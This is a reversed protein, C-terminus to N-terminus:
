LRNVRNLDNKLSILEEENMQSNKLIEIEKNLFEIKIELNNYESLYREIKNFTVENKM